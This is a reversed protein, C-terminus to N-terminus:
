HQLLHLRCNELLELIGDKLLQLWTLLRVSDVFPDAVQERQRRTRWLVWSAAGLARMTSSSVELWVGNTALSSSVTPAIKSKRALHVAGHRDRRMPETLKRVHGVGGHLITLSLWSDPGAGPM